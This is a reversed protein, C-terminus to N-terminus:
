SNGEAEKVKQDFTKDLGSLKNILLFLGNVVGASKQSLDRSQSDKFIREGTEPNYLCKVVIESKRDKLAIEVSDDGDKNAKARMALSRAQYEGLQADNLAKVRVTVGGWEPITVDEYKIDESGLIIEALTQM